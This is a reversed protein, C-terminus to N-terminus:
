GWGPRLDVCVRTRAIRGRADRVWLVVTARVSHRGTWRDRGGDAVVALPGDRLGAPHLFGVFMRRLGHRAPGSWARDDLAVRRGGVTATVARAPRRLWVAVGVRDCAISNPEGCSVGLSPARALLTRPPVTPAPTAPAAAPPAAIGAAAAAVVLARIARSVMGAM